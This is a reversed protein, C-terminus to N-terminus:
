SKGAKTMLWGMYAASAMQHVDWAPPFGGGNIWDRLARRLEARRLVDVRETSSLLRAQEDLNANPDM